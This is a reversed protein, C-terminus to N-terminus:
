PFAGLRAHWGGSATVSASTSQEQYTAAWTLIRRHGLFLREPTGLYALSHESDRELVTM